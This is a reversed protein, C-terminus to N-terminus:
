VSSCAWNWLVLNRDNPDAGPAFGPVLIGALGNAVLRDHIAWSAPRAGDALSSAWACSMVDMSVSHLERGRETCLDAVDDCVIEYSCLVCLDLRHAFGQNEEKIATM